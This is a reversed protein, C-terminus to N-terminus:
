RDRYRMQMSGSRLLGGALVTIAAVAALILVARLWPQGFALRMEAIQWAAWLWVAAAAFALGQLLLLSWRQRVLFLLPAALCLAVGIWNGVRLFHAAILLAAVVYLSIRARM